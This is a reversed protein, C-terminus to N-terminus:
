EEKERAARKAKTNRNLVICPLTVIENYVLTGSVLVVFGLLQLPDFSEKGLIM